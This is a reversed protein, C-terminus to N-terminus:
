AVEKLFVVIFLTKLINGRQRTNPAVPVFFFYAHLLAASTIIVFFYFSVNQSLLVINAFCIFNPSATKGECRGNILRFGAQCDCRYSGPL